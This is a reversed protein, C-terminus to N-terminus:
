PAMELYYACDKGTLTGGSLALYTASAGAMTQYSSLDQDGTNTGSLTTISLKTKITANTEDGRNSGTTATVKAKEATSYDETSLQKGSVKDVKALLAIDVASLSSQLDAARAISAPLADAFDQLTNTTWYIRDIKLGFSESVDYPKTTYQPM